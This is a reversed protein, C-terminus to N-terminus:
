FLNFFYSFFLRDHRVLTTSYRGNFCAFLCILLPTEQSYNLEKFSSNILFLFFIAKSNLNNKNVVFCYDFTKM